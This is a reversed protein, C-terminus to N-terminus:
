RSHPPAALREDVHDILQGMRHEAHNLVRIRNAGIPANPAMANVTPLYPLTPASPGNALNTPANQTVKIKNTKSITIPAIARTAPNPMM